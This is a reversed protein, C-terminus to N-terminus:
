SKMIGTIMINGRLFAGIMIRLDHDARFLVSPLPSSNAAIPPVTLRPVRPRGQWGQHVLHVGASAAHQWRRRRGARDPHEPGLPPQDEEEVM